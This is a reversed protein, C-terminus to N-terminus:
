VDRQPARSGEDAASGAEASSRGILKRLGRLVEPTYDAFMLGARGNGVWIVNAKFSYETSASGPFWIHVVANPSLVTGDVDVRVGGISIDRVTADIANGHDSIAVNWQFPRRPSWRNNRQRAAKM